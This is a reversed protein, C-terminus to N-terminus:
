NSNWTAITVVFTDIFNLYFKHGSLYLFYNQYLKLWWTLVTMIINNKCKLKGDTALM